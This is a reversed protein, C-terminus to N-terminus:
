PSNKLVPGQRVTKSDATPNARTGHKPYHADFLHLIHKVVVELGCDANIMHFPFKQSLGLVASMHEEFTRYRTLVLAEDMDTIREELLEGKGLLRVRANNLRAEIGRKLQRALSTEQSVYLIAVKFNPLSNQLLKTNLLSVFDVQTQTRPFGDVLLPQKPDRSLLARLLQELVMGDEVMKGSDLVAKLEPTQLLGSLCIPANQTNQAKLIHPTVTGKGSGPAGILWLIDESIRCEPKVNFAALNPASACPRIRLASPSLRLVRAQILAAQAKRPM